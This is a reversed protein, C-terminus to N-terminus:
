QSDEEKSLTDSEMENTTTMTDAEMSAEVEEMVEEEVEEAKPTPNPCAMLTGMILITVVSFLYIRAKKM